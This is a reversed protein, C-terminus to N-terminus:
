EESAEKETVFSWTYDKQEQDKGIKVKINVTYRTNIDLVEKPVLVITNLQKNNLDTEPTIVFCNVPTGKEDIIESKLVKKIQKKFMISVPSGMPKITGIPFPDPNENGSWSIKIETTENQPYVIKEWNLKEDEEGLYGFDFVHITKEASKYSGYGIKKLDPDLLRLRHYVTNVFLDIAHLASETQCFMERSKKEYGLSKLREKLTKGTFNPKREEEDRTFTDNIVMYKAHSFATQSLISDIELEPLAATTRFENIKSLVLSETNKRVAEDTNEKIEKTALKAGIIYIELVGNEASVYNSTYPYLSIIGSYSARFKTKEGIPFLELYQGYTSGIAGFLKGWSVGEAIFDHGDASVKPYVGDWMTWNGFTYIELTDGKEIYLDTSIFGNQPDFTIKKAKDSLEQTFEEINIGGEIGVELSGSENEIKYKDKNPFLYLVGEYESTTELGKGIVFTNSSGIKALLAGWNGYENATFQHGGGNVLKYKDWLSWKGTVEFKLKDGKKVYIGTSQKKEIPFVDVVKLPYAQLITCFIIFISILYKM